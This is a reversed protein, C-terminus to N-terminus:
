PAFIFEVVVAYIRKKAYNSIVLIGSKDEYDILTSKIM